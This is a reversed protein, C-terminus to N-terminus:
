AFEVVVVEGSKIAINGAYIGNFGTHFLKSNKITFVAKMSPRKRKHCLLFRNLELTGKNM